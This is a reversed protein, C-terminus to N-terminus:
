HISQSHERIVQIARELAHDTFESLRPPTDAANTPEPSNKTDLAADREADGHGEELAEEAMDESSVPQMWFYTPKPQFNFHEHIGALDRLHRRRYLNASEVATVPIENGVCPSVGWDERKMNRSSPRDINKGNPRWYSATTLKIASRGNQLMILNQVTGKGFSREGVVVARGNDQLCAALIESASASRRDILIVVPLSEPIKAAKSATYREKVREERGRIEVIPAGAPLFKDCIETVSPLLGGPNNRVDIILGDIQGVIQNTADAFEKATNEGFQVIRIYGIRPNSKLRFDWTGDPNFWDGQVSRVPIGRREVSFSMEKGDRNVTINAFSGSPGRILDVADRRAGVNIPNGDVSLLEDGPKLGAAWAPGGPMPALVVLRNTAEDTDMHMGVGDFRQNLGEQLSKFSDGRYYATDRDFGQLMGKISDDFLTQEDAPLLGEKMVIDMAETYLNAYRSKSTVSYCAIAIIASIAIIVINRLPM